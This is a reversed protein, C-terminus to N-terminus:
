QFICNTTGSYPMQLMFNLGWQPNKQTFARGWRTANAAKGFRFPLHGVFVRSPQALAAARKFNVSGYINETTWLGLDIFWLVRIRRGNAKLLFLVCVASRYCVHHFLTRM